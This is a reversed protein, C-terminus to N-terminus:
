VKAFKIPTKFTRLHLFKDIKQLEKYKEIFELIINKVIAVVMNKEVIAYSINYKTTNTTNTTNLHKHTSAHRTCDSIKSSTFRYKECKFKIANKPTIYASM